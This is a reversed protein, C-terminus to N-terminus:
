VEGYTAIKYEGVPKPTRIIKPIVKLLNIINEKEKREEVM